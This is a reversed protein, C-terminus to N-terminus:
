KNVRAYNKRGITVRQLGALDNIIKIDNYGKDILILKIEEVQWSSSEILIYGNNNLYKGAEEIIIRILDLGDKGGRLALDPEKWKEIIKEDSESDTLYPPNTVIIDFIQHINDFLNSQIFDAKTNHLLKNKQFFHKSAQSIDSATLNIKNAELKLTLGICGSGTCLDLVEINDQPMKNIIKLTEEVIIETDPRPILVGDGVFFDRGYFEKKGTIYAIPKNTLRQEVLLDFKEIIDNAIEENLMTLAIEKRLNSAELFLLLADLFASESINKLKDKAQNLLLNLTM